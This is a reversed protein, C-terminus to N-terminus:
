CNSHDNLTSKLLWFSIYVTVLKVLCVALMSWAEDEKNTSKRQYLIKASHLYVSPSAHTLRSGVFCLVCVRWVRFRTKTTPSPPPPPPVVLHWWRHLAQVSDPTVCASLILIGKHSSCVATHVCTNMRAFTPRLMHTHTRSPPPRILIQFFPRTINRHTQHSNPTENHFPSQPLPHHAAYGLWSILECWSKRNQVIM